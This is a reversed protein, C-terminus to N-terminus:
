ASGDGGGGSRPRDSPTTAQEQDGAEAAELPMQTRVKLGALQTFVDYAEEKVAHVEDHLRRAALQEKTSVANAETAETAETAAKDAARSREDALADARKLTEVARGFDELAATLEDAVQDQTPPTSM